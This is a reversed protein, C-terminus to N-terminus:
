LECIGASAERRLILAVYQTCLFIGIARSILEVTCGVQCAFHLATNGNEDPITTEAGHDLLRHVCERHGGRSAWILPTNGDYDQAQVFMHTRINPVRRGLCLWSFSVSKLVINCRVENSRNTRPISLQSVM